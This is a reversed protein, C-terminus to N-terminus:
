QYESANKKEQALRIYEKSVYDIGMDLSSQLCGNCTRCNGHIFFGLLASTWSQTCVRCPCYPFLEKLEEMTVSNSM